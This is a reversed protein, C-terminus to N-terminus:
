HTRDYVLVSDLLRSYVLVESGGNPLLSFEFSVSTTDNEVETWVKKNGTFDDSNPDNITYPPTSFNKISFFTSMKHMIFEVQEEETDVDADAGSLLIQGSINKRSFLTDYNKNLIFFSLKSETFNEGKLDLVFREMDEDPVFQHKISIKNNVAKPLPKIAKETQVKNAKAQSIGEGSDGSCSIILLASLAVCSIKIM